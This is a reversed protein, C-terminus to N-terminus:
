FLGKLARKAFLRGIIALPGGVGALAATVAGGVSYVNITFMGTHPDFTMEFPLWGITSLVPIVAALLSLVGGLVGKSRLAGKPKPAPPFENAYDKIPM